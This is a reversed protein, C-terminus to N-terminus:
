KVLDWQSVSDMKCGKLLWSPLEIFVPFFVIVSRSSVSYLRLIGRTLVIMCKWYQKLFEQNFNQVTFHLEKSPTSESPKALDM